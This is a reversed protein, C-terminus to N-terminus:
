ISRVPRLRLRETKPIGGYRNSIFYYAASWEDSYEIEGYEDGGFKDAWYATDESFGLIGLKSAYEDNLLKLEPITPLRWIGTTDKIESLFNTAQIFQMKDRIIGPSVELIVDKQFIEITGLKYTGYMM